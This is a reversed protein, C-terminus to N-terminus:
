RREGEAWIFNNSKVPPGKYIAKSHQWVCELLRISFSSLTEILASLSSHICWRLHKRPMIKFELWNCYNKFFPCHVNTFCFAISSVMSWDSWVTEGSHHSHTAFTATHQSGGRYCGWSNQCKEGSTGPYCQASPSTLWDAPVCHSSPLSWSCSCNLALNFKVNDGNCCKTCRIWVLLISRIM